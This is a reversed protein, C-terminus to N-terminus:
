QGPPKPSWDPLGSTPLGLQPQPAPAKKPGFLQYMLATQTMSNAGQGIANGMNIAAAGQANGVGLQSQSINGGAAGALQATTAAANEGMGALGSLMGWQQQRQQNWRNYANSYEQSALGQSYNALSKLAGGSLTGGRAAGSRELAKQGEQLRFAVGPDQAFTSPDYQQEAWGGPQLLEAMRGVAGSGANAYPSLQQKGEEYYQRATAEARAAAAAQAKAAKNAGFISGFISSGAGIASVTLLGGFPM